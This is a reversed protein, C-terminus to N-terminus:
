SLVQAFTPYRRYHEQFARLQDVELDFGLEQVSRRTLEERSPLAGQLVAVEKSTLHPAVIPETVFGGWSPSQIKTLTKRQLEPSPFVAGVTVM